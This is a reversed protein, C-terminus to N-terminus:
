EIDEIRCPRTDWSIPVTDPSTRLALIGSKLDEFSATVPEESLFVDFWKDAYNMAAEIGADFGRRDADAIVDREFLLARLLDAIDQSAFAHPARIVSEIAKKSTDAPPATNETHRTM